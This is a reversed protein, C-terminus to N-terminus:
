RNKNLLSVEYWQGCLDALNALLNISALMPGITVLNRFWRACRAGLRLVLRWRSPIKHLHKLEYHVASRGYTYQQRIFGSLTYSRLHMVRLPLYLVLGGGQVIRHKLDTDEGGAFPFTEDFGSVADLVSHRYSIANTGGAPCEDGGLYPASGARFLVHTTYAEFQALANHKLVDAPAEMYGGVGAAQPFDQYGQVLRAIYDDPLVCDDDTFAVIEGQAVHIGRNRAAAPGANRQQCIYIVQPFCTRVLESTGDSSCDDVVIIELEPYTQSASSELCCKLVAARNYTPIVLSVLM